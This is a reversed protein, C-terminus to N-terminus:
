PAPLVGIEELLRRQSLYGHLAAIRGDRVEYISTFSSEADQLMGEVIIRGDSLQGIAHTDVERSDPEAEVDAIWERVGDHGRYERRAVWRLPRVVIDPDALVLLEGLDRQNYAVLWRHVIRVESRV